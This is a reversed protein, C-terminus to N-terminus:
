DFARDEVHGLMAGADQRRGARPDLIAKRQEDVAALLRTVAGHGPPLPRPDPHRVVSRLVGAEARDIPAPAGARAEITSDIAPKDLLDHARLRLKGGLVTLQSREIRPEPAVQVTLPEPRQNGRLLFPQMAAIRAAVRIDVGADGPEIILADTLQLFHKRIASAHPSLGTTNVRTNASRAARRANRCAGIDLTAM